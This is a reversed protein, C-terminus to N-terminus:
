KLNKAARKLETLTFLKLNKISDKLGEKDKRAIKDHTVQLRGWQFSNLIGRSEPILIDETEDQIIFMIGRGSDKYKKLGEKTLNKGAVCMKKDETLYQCGNEKSIGCISSDKYYSALQALAFEKATPKM